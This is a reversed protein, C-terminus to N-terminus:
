IAIRPDQKYRKLISDKYTVVYFTGDCDFRPNCSGKLGLSLSWIEGGTRRNIAYLQGDINEAYLYNDPGIRPPEDIVDDTCFTWIGEGSIEDVAYINQDSSGFFIRGEEDVTPPSIIEDGTKFEWIINRTYEDIGFVSGNKCGFCIIGRPGIIPFTSISSSPIKVNWLSKGTKGDLANLVNDASNGSIYITGDKSV